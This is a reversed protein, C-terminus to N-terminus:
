IVYGVERTLYKYGELHKVAKAPTGAYLTYEKEYSKNLLSCAGLVSHAPLNAGKLITCKASVFTYSGIKIPAADQRNNKLDISHSLFSTQFGAVTVFDGIYVGGTCDIYHRSTLSSQKGIRLECKRNHIHAFHGKKLIGQNNTSFGSIWNANGIKAKEDMYIQDIRKCFNFHGIKAGDKLIVKQASIISFGIRTNRALEFGLARTLFWKRIPWPFFCLLIQALM